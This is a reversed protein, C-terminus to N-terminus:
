EDYEDEPIIFFLGKFEDAWERILNRYSNQITNLRDMLPLVDTNTENQTINTTHGDDSWDGGNQPTDNYRMVTKSNIQDLLHSTQDNYLDILTKYRDLTEFYVELLKSVFDRFYPTEKFVRGQKIGFYPNSPEPETIPDYDIWSIGCESYRLVLENLIPSFYAFELQSAKNQLVEMRPDYLTPESSESSSYHIPSLNQLLTKLQDAYFNADYSVVIKADDFGDIFNKFVFYKRIKGM